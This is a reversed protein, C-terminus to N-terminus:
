RKRFFEHKTDPYRKLSVVPGEFDIAGKPAARRVKLIEAAQEATGKLAQSFAPKLGQPIRRGMQFASLFGAKAL